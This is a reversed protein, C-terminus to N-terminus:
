ISKSDQHENNIEKVADNLRQELLLRNKEKQESSWVLESTMIHLVKEKWKEVWEIHFFLAGTRRIFFDNITAAMEERIAYLVQVYVDLPVGLKVAKEENEKGLKFLKVVNSGYMSALKQAQNNTFGSNMGEKVQHHLFSQFNKSGGVDGGSIPMNKTKSGGYNKGSEKVLQNNILNVVMEAMKRYGTLKGGAITILGSESVWVEDKRSIESASKGEEFILPRLGTWSSEIDAEKITLSPFMYAVAGLVYEKDEKTMRPNEMDDKYVTDTTGVYTKGDRPIAFIMRKDETDFYIAQKLPFKSQDFVLHIGKTLQLHKGKKSGDMERLSDVWPGAANVIKKAYIYHGKETLQDVVKVGIVKNNEYLLEEVKVYNVAEAGHKVAEKLVEITLRADDTRYEVYLGGGKLGRRNLLPERQLTEEANLMKRRESKKVNALFDYVRLGLSTSLKGFTGGKQIPLLMWEPTTVHPGNEYVIAREKGVEAVMKVELQKLYRLGGHVLKTSRSSTGAAFDQMEVVATKMGRTAADLAIGSGTIGGGIVLVDYTEETMKELILSRNYSAFAIKKM